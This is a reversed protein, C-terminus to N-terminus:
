DTQLNGDIVPNILNNISQDFRFEQKSETFSYTNISQNIPWKYKFRKWHKCWMFSRVFFEIQERSWRLIVNTSQFAYQRTSELTSQNIKSNMVKIYDISRHSKNEREIVHSRITQVGLGYRKWWGTYDVCLFCSISVILPWRVILLIDILYSIETRTSLRRFRMYWHERNCHDIPRNIFRPLSQDIMCALIAKQNQNLSMVFWSTAEKRGVVSSDHWM